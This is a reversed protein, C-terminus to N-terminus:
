NNAGFLQRLWGLLGNKNKPTERRASNSMEWHGANTEWGQNGWKPDQRTGSGGGHTRRVHRANTAIKQWNLTICADILKRLHEVNQREEDSHAFQYGVALNTCQPVRSMFAASDTFSGIGGSRYNLGQGQANLAAALDRTYIPHACVRGMQSSIVEDEGRRDFAVLAELGEGWGLNAAKRSGIMGREEGFFLFYEGSVGAKIMHLLVTVGAKDDAGLVSAGNTHVWHNNQFLEKIGPGSSVDDLHACFGTLNKEGDQRPIELKLGVGEVLEWGQAQLASSFKFDHPHPTNYQALGKFTEAPDDYVTVDLTDPLAKENM